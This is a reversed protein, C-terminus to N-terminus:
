AAAKQVVRRRKVFKSFRSPTGDTKLDAYLFALKAEEFKAFFEDWTLAKLELGIRKKNFSVRLIDTQRVVAPSAGREEMWSRIFAHDTTEKAAPM